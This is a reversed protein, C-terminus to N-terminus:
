RLLPLCRRWSTECVLCGDGGVNVKASIGPEVDLVNLILSRFFSVSVKRPKRVSGFGPIDADGSPRINTDIQGTEPRFAWKGQEPTDRDGSPLNSSNIDVSYTHTGFWLHMLKRKFINYTSRQIKRRFVPFKRGLFFKVFIFVCVCKWKVYLFEWLIFFYM